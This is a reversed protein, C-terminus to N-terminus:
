EGTKTIGHWPLDYRSIQPVNEVSNHFAQFEDQHFPLIYGGEEALLQQVEYYHELREAPDLTARAMDMMSEFRASNLHAVNYPNGTRNYTDIVQDATIQTDNMMFFPEVGWAESYFSDPSVQEIAVNIGAEAAQQQYVEALPIMHPSLNSTYLTVDLGDSYGAEALLEQAQAIDPVCEGDWRYPDGPWVMTDCAVTGSGQLVLDVMEQRDAVLRMAHRVRVDDFPPMDTRMGIAHWSGTPFQQIVLDPNNRLLTMQQPSPWLLLDLQGAQLAQLRADGDAIGIMDIAALGPPGRWYDDNAVFRTTGTADLTELKFPGTGIGTEGITDSSGEPIISAYISMLLVPLEAHPQSLNIVVTYDDPTEISEVFWLLSGLISATGGDIAYEFTYAVDASTLPSGDHFVVDDRLTFTWVTADANTEWATALAPAPDYNEDFSVLTDYLPRMADWFAVPDYPDLSEAGGWYIEHPM